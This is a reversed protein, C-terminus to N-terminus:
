FKYRSVWCIINFSKEEDTLQWTDNLNFVMHKKIFVNVPPPARQIFRPLLQLDGSSPERSLNIISAIYGRDRLM